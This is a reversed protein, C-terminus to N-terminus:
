RLVPRVSGGLKRSNYRTYHDGSYFGLYRAYYSYSEYLSSSWYTGDSGASLLSTDYYYGAAPLFISNGNSKSVVKYGNKGNMTTWTWTCEDILEQFEAITPMRWSGGWNARAADDSLELTTKNDVTGGQNQNYKSFSDATTDNCYKLNYWSYSSKTTTEGWAYYNGYDSPSSAGVNCTAWLTGSTLGLDVYEHGNEVSPTEPNDPVDPADDYDYTSISDLNEYSVKITMGDKKHVIIGQASIGMAYLVLASFVAFSRIFSRKMGKANM